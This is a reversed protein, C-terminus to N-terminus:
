TKARYFLLGGFWEEAFKVHIGYLSMPWDIAEFVQVSNARLNPRCYIGTIKLAKFITLLFAL